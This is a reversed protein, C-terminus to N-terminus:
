TPNKILRWSLNPHQKRNDKHMQKTAFGEFYLSINELKLAKCRCLALRM